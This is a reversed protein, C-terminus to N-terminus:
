IVLRGVGGLVMGLYEDEFYIVKNVVMQCFVQQVFIMIFNVIQINVVICYVMKQIMWMKVKNFVIDINMGFLNFIM